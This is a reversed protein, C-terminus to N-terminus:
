YHTHNAIANRKYEADRIVSKPKVGRYGYVRLTTRDFTIVQEAGNGLFDFMHYVPEKFFLTGRGDGGLKFKYWFYQKTGNGYWDGKVFNPNGNLPNAPWRSILNGKNDLWVLQAGLGGAGRPGYTRANVVVQPSKMGTLINGSTVQQTHDAMNQWLLEGTGAKYALAGIDSQGTLLELKGDSDIDAFEIADMHDHNDDFIHDNKWVQNGKADLCLHSIIVEDIGDGNLDIPYLYHGSYDKARKESHNWLQKLEKDYATLNIIGGSDTFVVLTNAYGPQFRAIATRFNNYVHPMPRTPWPVKHKIAGTRGDAMVLWEVGNEIRWHIVEAFGDQDFDWISGPAEFEGRLRADAAPAEWHWLEKGAHNYMYASYSPTLVLFDPKGDGDVDGFKVISASPITYDRLLEVQQPLELPKLDAESLNASKSLAVLNLMPRPNISSISVQATGRALTYTDGRKWEMPSNGFTAASVKGNISVKFSSEATGQSRVFLHYAGAEPVEISAVLDQKSGLNLAVNNFLWANNGAGGGNLTDGKPIDDFFASADAIITGSLAHSTAVQKQKPLTVPPKIPNTDKDPFGTFTPRVDVPIDTTAALASKLDAPMVNYKLFWAEVGARDGRAEMDLLVGALKALTPPMLAYDIQYRGDTAKLIAKHEVLYNFEMMQARGHAEAIGYRLTRFIGAVYSSYYEESRSKPIAGHDILWALGFMGAVDAKAEELGSYASGIAERIDTDKGNVKSFVPGLGHAIEHLVTAAMYGEGSAKAAQAPLMLRRALPLVVSAVRADMFNKFFIKKTGKERHIRPDNPLNDAVAQYGFRLDGARFPADMVEMPTLHGRKSPKSAADVPLADQIDAVYKQYLALKRSEAENRILVSAGFSTKIGMLDDLYTEYPAFIIDFKPDKLELWALDSNYYDSSQLADARLRLFNAFAKDDSLAAAERLKAAMPDIWRKYEVHFPVALLRDGQRKVVTYPDYIAAKDEPHATVYNEIQQRTIDHPYLERGKPMPVEGLFPHGEDILDWRSGMIGFLGKLIPSRTTRYIELGGRDSQQWYVEDLLKAAEVLKEVLKQERTTLGQRHFPMDVPKWKQLREAENHVPRGGQALLTVAGTILILSFHILRMLKLIFCFSTYHNSSQHRTESKQATSHVSERFPEIATTKPNM